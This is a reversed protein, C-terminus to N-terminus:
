KKQAQANWAGFKGLSDNWAANNTDASWITRGVMRKWDISFDAADFSASDANLFM